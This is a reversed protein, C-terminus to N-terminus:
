IIKNYYNYTNSIERRTSNVKKASRLFNTLPTYYHSSFGKSMVKSFLNFECCDAYNVRKCGSYVSHPFKFSFSFFLTTLRDAENVNKM